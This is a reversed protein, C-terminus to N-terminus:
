DDWVTQLLYGQPADEYFRIANMTYVIPENYFFDQWEEKDTYMYTDAFIGKDWKCIWPLVYHHCRRWWRADWFSYEGETADRIVVVRVRKWEDYKRDSNSKEDAFDSQYRTVHSYGPELAAFGWTNDGVFSQKDYSSWRQPLPFVKGPWKKVIRAKDQTFEPDASLLLYSDIIDGDAWSQKPKWCGWDEESNHLTWNTGKGSEMCVLIGSSEKTYGTAERTCIYYRGNHLYVDGYLCPSQYRQVRGNDDLQDERKYTIRQLRPICPIAVTAYGLNSGDPTRFFELGGLGIDSFDIRYGDSSEKLIDERWGVLSCFAREAADADSVVVIHDFDNGENLVQGYKPEFTKKTYDDVESPTVERDLLGSLLVAAADYRAAKQRDQDSGSHSPDKECGIALLLLLLPIYALFRKM